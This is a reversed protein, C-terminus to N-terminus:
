QAHGWALFARHHSVPDHVRLIDVGKEMLSFSIGLTELDREAAPVAGVGRLFSKRSHGVLIPVGFRDFADIGKLLTISQLATKGFGIGPDVLIQHRAVGANELAELKKEIWEVLVTVADEKEGLVTRSDAPVSLSHMLVYKLDTGRLLAAFEPDAFGSVDNLITAGIELARAATRLHRTDVSIAPALRRGRYRAEVRKLIPGLREWEEDPSLPTSGPRTSEAGLDLMSVGIADWADLTHEIAEWRDHVGGDSFSDPTLNLIGMLRPRHKRHRRAASRFEPALEALPDLVFERETLHPHPLTLTETALTVGEWTLLDLDITRPSWTAHPGRGLEREILQLESLFASPNRDTPAVIEVVLNLYPRNWDEPSRDPLLAPTEYVSSVRLLRARESIKAVAAELTARRDGVPSPLNSGLGIYVKKDAM